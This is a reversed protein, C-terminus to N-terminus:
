NTILPNFNKIQKPESALSKLMDKKIKIKALNTKYLEADIQACSLCPNLSLETDGLQLIYSSGFTNEPMKNLGKNVDGMTTRAIVEGTEANVIMLNLKDGYIDTKFYLTSKEKKSIKAAVEEASLYEFPFPYEEKFDTRQIETSAMDVYLTKEKLTEELQERNFEKQM